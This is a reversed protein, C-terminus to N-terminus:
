LSIEKNLTIKWGANLHIRFDTYCPFAGKLLSYEDSFAGSPDRISLEPEIYFGSKTNITWGLLVENLSVSSDSLISQPQVFGLQILSLGVFFGKSEFPYYVLFAGAETLSSSSNKVLGLLARVEFTKTIKLRTDISLNYGKSKDALDQVSGLDCGLGFQVSAFVSTCLFCLTIILFFKKM